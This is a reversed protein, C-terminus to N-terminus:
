SLYSINPTEIEVIMSKEEIVVVTTEIRYPHSYPTNVDPVDCETFTFRKHEPIYLALIKKDKRSYLALPALIDIV